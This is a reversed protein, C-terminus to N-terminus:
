KKMCKGIATIIIERIGGFKDYCIEMRDIKKIGLHVTEYDDLSNKSIVLMEKLNLELEFKQLLILKSNELRFTVDYLVIEKIRKYDTRKEAEIEKDELLCKAIREQREKKKEIDKKVKELNKKNWKLKSYRIWVPKLMSVRDERTYEVGKLFYKFADEFKNMKYNILFLMFEDTINTLNSLIELNDDTSISANKLHYIIKENHQVRYGQEELEQVAKKALKNTDVSGIKDERILIRGYTSLLFYINGIYVEGEGMFYLEDKKFEM